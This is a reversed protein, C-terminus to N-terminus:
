VPGGPEPLDAPWWDPRWQRRPDPSLCTTILREVPTQKGLEVRVITLWVRARERHPEEMAPIWEEVTNLFRELSRVQDFHSAMQFARELQKAQAEQRRREAAEIAEQRRRAEEARAKEERLLPQRTILHLCTQVTETLAAELKQQTGTWENTTGFETGFVRFTMKESPLYDWESAWFRDKRRRALEDADVRIRRYGESFALFIRENRLRGEVRPKGRSDKVGAQITMGAATLAKFIADHFRLIWNMNALSATVDLLGRHALSYRGHTAQPPHELTEFARVSGASRNWREILKPIRSVYQATDRVLPHPRELVVPMLVPALTEAQDANPAGDTTPVAPKQRHAREQFTAPQLNVVPDLEPAPLPTQPPKKGAKLKAWHGRPPLPIAHRRCAKALGVDSLGLEKAFRSVPILWVKAYLESRKM